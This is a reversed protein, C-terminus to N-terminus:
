TVIMRRYSPSSFSCKPANFIDNSAPFIIICWSRRYNYPSYVPKRVVINNSLSRQSGEVVGVYEFVERSLLFCWFCEYSCGFFFLYGDAVELKKRIM